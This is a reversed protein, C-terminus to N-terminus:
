VSSILSSVQNAVNTYLAGLDQQYPKLFALFETAAQSTIAHIEDSAQTVFAQALAQVQNFANGGVTVANSIWAQVSAAAQSAANSLSNWADSFVSRSQLGLSSLVQQLLQPLNLQNVLTQAHSIVSDIVAQLDFNQVFDVLAGLSRGHGFISGWINSFLSSLIQQGNELVNSGVASLQAYTSQLEEVVNAAIVQGQNITAQIQEILATAHTQLEQILPTQLESSRSALRIKFLAQSIAPQAQQVLNATFAAQSVAVLAFLVIIACKM